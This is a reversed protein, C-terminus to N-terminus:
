CTRFSSLFAPIISSLFAPYFSFILILRSFTSGSETFDEGSFKEDDDVRGAEEHLANFLKEDVGIFYINQDGERVANDLLTRISRKLQGVDRYSGVVIPIRKQGLLIKSLGKARHKVGRDVVQDPFKRLSELNESLIICATIEGEEAETKLTQLDNVNIYGQIPSGAHSGAKFKLVQIEM